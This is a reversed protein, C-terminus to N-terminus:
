FFLRVLMGVGILTIFLASVVPLRGLIRQGSDMRRAVTNGSVVLLGVAILVAAIGASFVLILVLGFVIRSVGVAILLLVIADPCPVVGGTIGLFLLNWFSIGDEQGDHCHPAAPPHDGCFAHGHDHHHRGHPHHHYGSGGPHAPHQRGPLTRFLMWGGMVIVLLASGIELWRNLTAPLIIHSLFFAAIGTLFPLLFVIELM